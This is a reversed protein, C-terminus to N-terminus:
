IYNINKTDITIKKRIWSQFSKATFNLLSLKQRRGIPTAGEALVVPISAADTGKLITKGTSSTQFFNVTIDPLTAADSSPKFPKEPVFKDKESDRM